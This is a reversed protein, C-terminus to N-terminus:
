KKKNKLHRQWLDNDSKRASGNMIVSYIRGYAWAQPSMKKGPGGKVGKVNRVSGPQNKHAALGRDYIKDLISMSIGTKKSIDSKSHSKDKPYGYRKNYKQKYTEVM